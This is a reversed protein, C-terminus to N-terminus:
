RIEKHRGRNGQTGRLMKGLTECHKWHKESEGEKNAKKDM